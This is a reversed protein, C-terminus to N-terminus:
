MELNDGGTAPQRVEVSGGLARAIENQRRTHRRAPLSARTAIHAAGISAGALVGMTGGVAVSALATGAVALLDLSLDVFQGRAGVHLPGGELRRAVMRTHEDIAREVSPMDRSALARDLKRVSEKFDTTQRLVFIERVVNLLEATTDEIRSTEYSSSNEVLSTVSSSGPAVSLFFAESDPAPLWLSEHDGPEATPASQSLFAAVAAVQATTLAAPRADRNTLVPTSAAVPALGISQAVVLNYLTDTFELVGELDDGLTERASEELGPWPGPHHVYSRNTFGHEVGTAAESARHLSTLGRRLTDFGERRELDRLNVLRDPSPNVLLEVGGKITAAAASPKPSVVFRGDGIEADKFEAWVRRVRDGREDAIGKLLPRLNEDAISEAVRAAFARDGNVEPFVSCHFRSSEAGGAQRVMASFADRFTQQGYLHLKLPKDNLEVRADDRAALLDYALVMFSWSDMAFPQPVVIDRGMALATTVEVLTQLRGLAEREPDTVGYIRRVSDLSELYQVRVAVGLGCSDARSVSGSEAVADDCPTDQM